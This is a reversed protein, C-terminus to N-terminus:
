GLLVQGGGPDLDRLDQAVCCKQADHGLAIPRRQSGPRGIAIGVANTRDTNDRILEQQGVRRQTREDRLDTSARRRQGSPRSGRRRGSARRRGRDQVAFWERNARYLHALILDSAEANNTTKRSTEAEAIAAPLKDRLVQLAAFDAAGEPTTGVTHLSLLEVAEDVKKEFLLLPVERRLQVTLHDVLQQRTAIPLPKLLIARAAAQGPKGLKLLEAFAAKRESAKATRFAEIAKLVAPPTDPFIYWGFTDLIQGARRSVEPSPDVAAKELAPIAARGRKWLLEGAKERIAFSSNGLDLILEELTPETPKADQSVSPSPTIVIGAILLIHLLRFLRLCRHM